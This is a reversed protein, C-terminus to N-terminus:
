EMGSVTVEPAIRGVLGQLVSGPGLEVFAEAGDAVMAKVSQTWLVPATLQAKLNKRIEVIDTTPRATYNQYIPCIPTQLTARDVAEALEARAPEMFRSHFAGSVKLPLVRKAGAEKMRVTAEEIGRRSGSIAVQGPCNFNAPLVQETIELCIENVKEDPLGLVVAMTSEQLECAKQMASARQAVLRLGEEFSLCRNAVLASFEGLSHGAVMDPHFDKVGYLALATSHLFISPQTVKTQKLEEETGSFMIDTIRFGLIENAQEFLRKVEDKEEYLERAMGVHQAGQGPFLYATKM